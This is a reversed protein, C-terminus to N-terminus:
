LPVASSTQWSLEPLLAVNTAGDPPSTLTVGPPIDTSIYLGAPTSQELEGATGTIQMWYQGPTAAGTNSITMVSTGPPTVPNVSFDVGTGAPEGSTSLTIPDSFGHLAEVTITYVADAPACVDQSAPDADLDFDPGCPGAASLDSEIFDEPLGNGESLGVIGDGADTSLWTIHIEGEFYMEIQFTNDNNAGYEPVDEFTVAVRDSLQRWSVTGGNQPSFDDFLGSIRPQNFHIALTEDWVNDGGTFTLNGNSNVYFGEYSVGYLSVTEGGALEVHVWSDEGPYIVTGGSPDTPFETTEEGCVDYYDGTGDPIYAVSFGELDISSAAAM